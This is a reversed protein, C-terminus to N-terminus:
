FLASVMKFDSWLMEFFKSKLHQCFNKDLHTANLTESSSTLIIICVFPSSNQVLGITKKVSLIFKRKKKLESKTHDMLLIYDRM